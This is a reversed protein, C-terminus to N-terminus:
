ESYTILLSVCPVCVHMCSFDPTLTLGSCKGWVQLSSELAACDWPTQLWLNNRM